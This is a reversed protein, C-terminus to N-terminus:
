RMYAEPLLLGYLRTHTSCLLAGASPANPQNSQSSQYHVARSCLGFRPRLLAACRRHINIATGDDSFGWSVGGVSARAGARLSVGLLLSSWRTARRKNQAAASLGAITEPESSRKETLAHHTSPTAYTHTHPPHLSHRFLTPAHMCKLFTHVHTHTHPPARRRPKHRIICAGVLLGNFKAQDLSPQALLPSVSCQCSSVPRKFFEDELM